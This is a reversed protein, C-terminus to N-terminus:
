RRPSPLGGSSSSLSRPCYGWRWARRTPPLALSLTQIPSLSLSLRLSLSLSLSVQTIFGMWFREYQEPPCGGIRGGVYSGLLIGGFRLAFVFSALPLNAALSGLKLCAGPPPTPTCGPTRPTAARPAHPQLRAAPQPSPPRPVPWRSSRSSSPRPPSMSSSYSTRALRPSTSLRSAPWWRSSSRSTGAAASPPRRGTSRRCPALALALALARTRARTLITALALALALTSTPPLTPTLTPRRTSRAQFVEFGLLQVACSEAAVLALKAGLWLSTLQATARPAAGVASIMKSAAPPAASEAPPAALAAPTACRTCRVFAHIALGLLLGVVVSLAMQSLSCRGYHTDGYHTSGYYADAMTLKAMTLMQWLSNRWLLCRGYHTDGYHTPGDAHRACRAMCATHVGHAIGHRACAMRSAMGHRARAQAGFLGLVTATSASGHSAASDTLAHVVLMTM